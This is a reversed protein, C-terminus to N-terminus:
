VQKNQTPKRRRTYGTLQDTRAIWINKQRAIAPPPRRAVFFWVYIYAVGSFFVSGINAL